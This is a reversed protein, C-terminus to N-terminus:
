AAHWSLKQAVKLLPLLTAGSIVIAVANNQHFAGQFLTQLGFILAFYILALLANLSGYVLTRNIVVDIDWLRSRVIAFGISLSILLEFVYWM